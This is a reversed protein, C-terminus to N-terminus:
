TLNSCLVDEQVELSAAYKDNFSLKEAKNSARVESTGKPSNISDQQDKIMSAIHQPAAAMVGADDRICSQQTHMPLTSKAPSDM